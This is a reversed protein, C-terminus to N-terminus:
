CDHIKCFCEEEVAHIITDYIHVLSENSKTAEKACEWAESSTLSYGGRYEQWAAVLRSQNALIAM